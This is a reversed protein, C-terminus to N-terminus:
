VPVMKSECSINESSFAKCLKVTKSTWSFEVHLFKENSKKDNMLTDRDQCLTEIKLFKM